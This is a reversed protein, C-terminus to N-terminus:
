KTVPLPSSSPGSEQELQKAELEALRDNSWGPLQDYNKQLKARSFDMGPNQFILCVNIRHSDYFIRTNNGHVVQLSNKM